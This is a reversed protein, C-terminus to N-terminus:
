EEDGEMAHATISLQRNIEIREVAIAQGTSETPLTAPEFITGTLPDTYSLIVEKNAGLILSFGNLNGAGGGDDQLGELIRNTEKQQALIDQATLEQAVGDISDQMTEVSDSADKASNRANTESTSANSASTAANSESTAANSESTSANFASTFANSAYTSANSESTSANEESAAANQASLAADGAADQAAQGNAEIFDIWEAETGTYGQEVAIEYASKGDTGEAVIGTDIDGIFWHKNEGIRPTVGDKGEAQVGTDTEGIFWNGNEGIYPTKGDKGDFEGNNARDLVKQAMHEAHEAKQAIQEAATLPIEPLPEGALIGTPQVTITVVETTIRHGAKNGHLYVEWKGAALNLHMDETIKNDSLNIDYVTKGQKFHAWKDVGDWDSTQFIFQATLYDITDAAIVPQNIIITQGRVFVNIM